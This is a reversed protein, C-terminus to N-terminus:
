PVKGCHLWGRRSLFYPKLVAPLKGSEGGSVKRVGFIGQSRRPFRKEERPFPIEERPFTIEERPFTIEERPFTIEERPFRKGRREL